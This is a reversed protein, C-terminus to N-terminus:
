ARSSPRVDPTRRHSNPYETRSSIPSLPPLNDESPPRLCALRQRYTTSAVLTTTRAKGHGPPQFARGLGWDYAYGTTQWFGCCDTSPSIATPITWFKKQPTCPILLALFWPQRDPQAPPPGPATERAAASNVWISPGASRRSKARRMM